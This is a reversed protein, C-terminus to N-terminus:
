KLHGFARKIDDPDVGLDRLIKKAQSAPPASATDNADVMAIHGNFGSRLHAAFDTPVRVLARGNVIEGAALLTRGNDKVVIKGKSATVQM